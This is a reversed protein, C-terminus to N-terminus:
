GFVDIQDLEEGSFVISYSEPSLHWAEEAEDPSTAEVEYTNWVIKSHRVRYIKLENSM